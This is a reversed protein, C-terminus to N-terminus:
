MGNYKFTSSCLTCSLRETKGHFSNMHRNLQSARNFIKTCLSCKLSTTHSKIHEQFHGKGKIVSPCQECNYKKDNHTKEHSRLYYITTFKKDCVTCVFSKVNNSEHMKHHRGLSSPDNFSKDCYTCNYPRLGSHVLTHRSLYEKRKFMKNCLTCEFDKSVDM